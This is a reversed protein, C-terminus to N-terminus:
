KQFVKRATKSDVPVLKMAGRPNDAYEALIAPDFGSKKLKEKAQSPTLVGPKTLDVALMRGLIEVQERPVTWALRGVSQELGFFPVPEGRALDDHVSDELGSVRAELRALARRLTRLELARAEPTMEDPLSVLSLEAAEYATRQLAECAHRGTCHKCGDNVTAPPNLSMVREAAARLKNVYPRLDSAVVSWTRVPGDRHYCRPQVITFAIRTHQEALGDLDLADVIGAAYDILQWNEFVDVFGHGFKYDFVHIVRSVPDYCWVDPTGWNLPHVSPIDVRKEVHLAAGRNAAYVTEVFMAAGELMEETVTVGNPAVEGPAPFRGVFMEAFVWHAATGEEAAAKDGGREPYMAWMGPAAACREWVGAGSPPLYAHYLAQSIATHASANM